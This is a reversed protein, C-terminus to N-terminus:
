EIKIFLPFQMVSNMIGLHDRSLSRWRGDRASIVYIDFAIRAHPSSPVTRMEHTDSEFFENYTDRHLRFFYTGGIAEVHHTVYYELCTQIIDDRTM